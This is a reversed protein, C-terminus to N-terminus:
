PAHHDEEPFREDFWADRSRPGHELEMEEAHFSARDQRDCREADTLDPTKPKPDIRM